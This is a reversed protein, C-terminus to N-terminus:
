KFFKRIWNRFKMLQGHGEDTMTQGSSQEIFPYVLKDGFGTREKIPCHPLCKLTATQELDGVCSIMLQRVM